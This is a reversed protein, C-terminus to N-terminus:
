LLLILLLIVIIIAGVSLYVGNNTTRLSKNIARVEKRLTKKEIRTMDSKDMAKIEELREIMKAAAISEPTVIETNTFEPDSTMAKSQIPLLVSMILILVTAQLRTFTKM